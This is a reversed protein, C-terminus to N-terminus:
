LRATRVQRLEVGKPLHYTLTIRVGGARVLVGRKRPAIPITVTVPKRPRPSVRKSAITAGGGLPVVEIGVECRAPCLVDVKAKQPTVQAGTPPSTDPDLKEVLDLTLTGEVTYDCWVNHEAVYGPCREKDPDPYEPPKVADGFVKITYREDGVTGTGPLTEALVGGRAIEGPGSGGENDSCELPFTLGTFLHVNNFLLGPEVYAPGTAVGTEGACEEVRRRDDQTFTASATAATAWVTGGAGRPVLHLRNGSTVVVDPLTGRITASAKMTEYDLDGYENRLDYSVEAVFTVSYLYSVKSGRASEPVEAADAGGATPSLCAAILGAIAGLCLRRM